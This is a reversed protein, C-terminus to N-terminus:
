LGRNTALKWIKYKMNDLRTPKSYLDNVTTGPRYHNLLRLYEQLYPMLLPEKDQVTERVTSGNFHIFILPYREDLMLKGAALSRKVVERNWEAVNCGKHRLVHARENMVPVLDLYKQDDFMGRLPNKECRYLCCQAWWDLTPLSAKSAALFGANYLGVRYNAELWNQNKTPDRPYHHPTLLMEYEGLLQFLFQYPGFFAIDNDTYIIKEDARQLLMSLFLPKMCWRLKDKSRHYKKLVEKTLPNDFLQVPGYIKTQENIPEPYGDICLVHFTFQDGLVAISDYLAWTKYMHDATSITCFHYM